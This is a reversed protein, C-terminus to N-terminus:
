WSCGKDIRDPLLFTAKALDSALTEQRYYQSLINNKRNLLDENHAAFEEWTQQYGGRAMRERILFLFALTVTENYLAPKGKAAAFRTLASSFRQIAELGPYRCLYLFAMHVHDRHHFSEAPLSADEFRAIFEDDSLHM